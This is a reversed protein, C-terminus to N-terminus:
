RKQMIIDGILRIHNQTESVPVILAKPVIPNSVLEFDYISTVKENNTCKGYLIYM